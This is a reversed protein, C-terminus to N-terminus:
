SGKAVEIAKKLELDGTYVAKGTIAAYLGLEKLEIIHKISSIGGSATIKCNVGNKLSRLYKLPPGSLMGDTDIDTFIIHEAGRQEVIKAFELFNVSTGEIWGKTRVLGNKCDISVAVREAGFAEVAMTVIDPDEVAASGIIFRYVGMEDLEYMDELSRIGGGLEIRLGSEEVVAKIASGNLRIGNKAGDLDVMHIIEAGADKFALATDIASDAVKHATNYDGRYLRVCEGKHLDIAPIVIM